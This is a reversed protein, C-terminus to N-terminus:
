DVKKVIDPGPTPPTASKQEKELFAIKKNVARVIAPWYKQPTKQDGMKVIKQAQTAWNLATNYAKIAEPYKKKRSYIVGLMNAMEYAIEAITIGECLQLASEIAKIAEEINGTANNLKATLQLRKVRPFKQTPELKSEMAVLKTLTDEATAPKDQSICMEVFELMNMFTHSINTTQQLLTIEVRKELIAKKPDGAALAAVVSHHIEAATAEPNNTPPLVLEPFETIEEEAVEIDIQPFLKALKPLIMKFIRQSELPRFYNFSDMQHIVDTGQTLSDLVSGRAKPDETVWHEPRNILVISNPQIQKPYTRGYTSDLVYGFTQLLGTLEFDTKYYDLHTVVAQSSVKEPFGVLNDIARKWEAEPGAAINSQYIEYFVKISQILKVADRRFQESEMNKEPEPFEKEYHWIPWDDEMKNLKTLIKIFLPKLVTWNLHQEEVELTLAGSPIGNCLLFSSRIKRLLIYDLVAVWKWERQTCLQVLPNGSDGRNTLRLWQTDLWHALTEKTSVRLEEPQLSNITASLGCTVRM